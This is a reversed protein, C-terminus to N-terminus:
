KSPSVANASHTTLAVVLVSSFLADPHAPQLIKQGQFSRAGKRRQLRWQVHRTLRNHVIRVHFSPTICAASSDQEKYTYRSFHQLELYLHRINDGSKQLGKFQLPQFTTWKRVEIM